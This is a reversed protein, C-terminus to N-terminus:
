QKIKNDRIEWGENDKLFEGVQKKIGQCFDWIETTKNAMDEAWEKQQHTELPTGNFKVITPNHIGGGVTEIAYIMCGTEHEMLWALQEIIKDIEGRMETM